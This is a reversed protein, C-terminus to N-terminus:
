IGDTAQWQLASRLVIWLGAPAQGAAILLLGRYAAHGHGAAALAEWMAPDFHDFGSFNHLRAALQAAGAPITVPLAPPTESPAAAAFTDVLARARLAVQRRLAGTAAGAVADGAAFLGPFLGLDIRWGQCGEMVVVDASRRGGDLLCFEGLVGGTGILALKIHGDGLTRGIAAVSGHTRLYLGDAQNNQAFLRTGAPAAFPESLAAFAALASTDLEALLDVGAPLSAAAHQLIGM